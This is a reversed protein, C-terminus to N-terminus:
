KGLMPMHLQLSPTRGERARRAAPFLFPPRFFHADYFAYVPWCHRQQATNLLKDIQPTAPVRKGSKNKKKPVVGVDHYGWVGNTERAKKAQALVSFWQSKAPSGFHWEWDAGTKPELRWQQRGKKVHAISVVKLRLRPWLYQNRTLDLLFRDTITEEGYLLASQFLEVDLLHRSIGLCLFEFLTALRKPV